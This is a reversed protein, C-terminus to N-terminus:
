PHQGSKGPDEPIGPDDSQPTPEPQPPAQPREPHAPHEPHEPVKPDADEMIHTRRQKALTKLWDIDHKWITFGIAYCLAKMLMIAIFIVEEATLLDPHQYSLHTGIACEVGLLTLGVFIFKWAASSHVLHIRWLVTLLYVCVLFSAALITAALYQSM